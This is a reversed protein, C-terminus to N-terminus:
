EACESLWTASRNYNVPDLEFGIARRKLKRSAALVSGSGAFCDLVLDGPNSSNKILVELLESPLQLPHIRGTHAPAKYQLINAVPKWLSKSREQNHGFLIIQYSSMYHYDKAITSTMGKAWILPLDDILFGAKKLLLMQTCYMQGMGSFIYVHAGRALKKALKPLLVEFTSIMTATDSVNTENLNYAATDSTATKIIDPQAFPPDTLLLQVSGDELSDILDICNGLKLEIGLSLEKSAIQQGLEARELMQGILRRAAHKPLRTVKKAMEPNDRLARALQIDQTVKGSASNVAKATDRIGWGANGVPSATKEGYILQKLEHYQRLAEVEEPWELQKRRINEELEGAKRIVSDTKERIHAPIDARCLSLFARIRREGAVLLYEFGDHPEELPEVVVPHMLGQSTISEALEAIDGYDSRCRTTPSNSHAIFISKIPITKVAIDPM